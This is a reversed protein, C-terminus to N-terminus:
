RGEVLFSWAADAYETWTSTKRNRAETRLRELLVEDHLLQEMATAIATVDYPDVLLCGGGEAIESMSGHRSTIAPPGSALSEAVPLGFGEVLSPFVTFRALRYAAWLEEDSARRVTRVPRGSGALRGVLDAFSEGKWGSGGIFVLEFRSGASWLRESAELVRLHNKRPEQSGVVLVLPLSGVDLRVRAAEVTEESLRPVETPLPHAVVVPPRIGQTTTMAAFASYADATSRSIASVRDAHMLVSLYDIFLAAIGADTTESAILPVVDYAIMSLTELM